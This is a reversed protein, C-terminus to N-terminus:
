ISQFTFNILKKHDSLDKLSLFEDKLRIKRLYVANLFMNGYIQDFSVFLLNGKNKSVKLM